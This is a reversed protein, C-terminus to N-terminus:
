GVLWDSCDCGAARWGWGAIKGISAERGSLVVLLEQPSCVGGGQKARCCVEREGLVSM